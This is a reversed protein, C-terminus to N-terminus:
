RGNSFVSSEKLQYKKCLQLVKKAKKETDMPIRRILLQMYHQGQEPCHALYGLALQWLSEHGM